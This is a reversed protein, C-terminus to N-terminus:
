GESCNSNCAQAMIDPEKSSVCDRDRQRQRDRQTEIDTQRGDAVNLAGALVALEIKVIYRWKEM